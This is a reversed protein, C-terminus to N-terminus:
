SYHLRRASNEASPRGAGRKRLQEDIKAAILEPAGNDVVKKVRAYQTGSFGVMQGLIEQTRGETKSSTGFPVDEKKYQNTGHRKRLQEDIKAAIAIRESPTFDKHLDNEDREAILLDCDVIKAPITKWGLHTVAHLRRGGCVLENDKTIVINHLLGLERISEVLADMDGMDKRIRDGVVIDEIRIDM